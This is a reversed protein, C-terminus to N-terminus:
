IVCLSAGRAKLYTMYDKVKQTAQDKTKLFKIMIHRVADDILLLYYQNDNISRKDYKEWLNIHTLEGVKTDQATAPGYPAEFLKAEMCVICDPKPSYTDINLGDVLDLCVLKELGSYAIHGFHKHQIEWPISMRASFCILDPIPNEDPPSAINFTIRYLKSNRRDGKMITTDRDSNLTVEQEEFHANRGSAKNWRIVSLLNNQNCLIHLVNQLCIINYKGNCKSSLYVTGKGVAFVQVGGIGTVKIDLVPTYTAFADRRNTVHVTSASDAIWEFLDENQPVVSSSTVNPFAVNVSKLGISDTKNPDYLDSQYHYIEIKEDDGTDIDDIGTITAALLSVFAGHITANNAEAGDEARHSQKQRKNSSDGKKEKGKWPCKTSSAQPIWCKDGKHFHNCDACKKQGLYKCDKKKHNDRGCHNCYVKKRLGLSGNSAGQKRKGTSESLRNAFSSNNKKNQKQAKTEQKKQSEILNYEQRILGILKQSDVCKQPDKDVEDVHGRVFPNTFTNWSRPLSQAIIHKFFTDGMLKNHNCFLTLKDWSKKLKVLHDPINMGETARIELTNKLQDMYVMYDTSKYMLKPNEWMKHATGCGQMHVKKSPATNNDICLKAYANNYRLNKAGVPDHAQDPHLVWNVVFDVIDNLNFLMIMSESWTTWNSKKGELTEEIKTIGSGGGKFILPVAATAQSAASATTNQPPPALASVQIQPQSTQTGVMASQLAAPEPNINLTNPDDILGDGGADALEEDAITAKFVPEPVYGNEM